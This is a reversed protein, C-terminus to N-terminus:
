LMFVFALWHFVNVRDHRLATRARFSSPAPRIYKPPTEHGSGLIEPDSGERDGDLVGPARERNPIRELESKIVSRELVGDHFVTLGVSAGLELENADHDALAGEGIEVDPVQEM